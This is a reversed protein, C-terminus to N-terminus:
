LMTNDKTAWYCPNQDFKDHDALLENLHALYQTQNPKHGSHVM